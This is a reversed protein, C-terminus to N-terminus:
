WDEGTLDMDTTTTYASGCLIGEMEMEIIEIAPKEYIEAQEERKNFTKETEM